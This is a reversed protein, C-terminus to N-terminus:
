KSELLSMFAHCAAAISMENHASSLVFCTRDQTIMEFKTPLSTRELCRVVEPGIYSPSLSNVYEGALALALSANRRQFHEDPAITIHNDTIFTEDIICLEVSKEDARDRLVRAAAEQQLVSFAPVGPRFIGSEHWAISELNDGLRNTHDLGLETIGTAMSSTIVNTSDTEGGMGTELVAVDVAEEAFIHFALLTIFGAYGPMPPPAAHIREAHEAPRM